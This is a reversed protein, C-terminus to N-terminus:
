RALPVKAQGWDTLQDTPLSEPSALRIPQVTPTLGGHRGPLGPFQFVLAVGPVALL